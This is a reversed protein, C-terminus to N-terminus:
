SFFVRQVYSPPMLSRIVALYENMQKRRNREVAIHTMRQQEVEEKNKCSRRRRKRRGGGGSGSGDTTTPPPPPPGEAEAEASLYQEVPCNCHGQDPSSYGSSKVYQQNEWSRSNNENHIYDNEFPNCYNPILDYNLSNFGGFGVGNFNYFSFQDRCSNYSTLPHDQQSFVVAELAMREKRKREKKTPSKGQNSSFFPTFFLPAKYFASFL